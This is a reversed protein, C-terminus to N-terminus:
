LSGDNGRLFKAVHLLEVASCSAADFVNHAVDTRRPARGDEFTSHQYFRWGRLRLRIRDLRSYSAPARTATTRTVYAAAIVDNPAGNMVDVPRRGNLRQNPQAFWTTVAWGDFVQMLEAVVRTAEPRPRLDRPDFQFMPVWFLTDFTFEFAQKGVILEALSVCNGLRHDALLRALDDGKAIGGSRGFALRLAEFYSHTPVDGM